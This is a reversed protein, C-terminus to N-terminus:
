IGSPKKEKAQGSLRILHDNLSCNNIEVSINIYNVGVTKMERLCLLILTIEYWIYFFIDRCINSLIRCINSNQM